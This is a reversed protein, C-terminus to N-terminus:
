KEELLLDGILRTGAAERQMVSVKARDLSIRPNGWFEVPGDRLGIGRRDKSQSHSSRAKFRRLPIIALHNGDQNEVRLFVGGVPIHDVLNQLNEKLPVPNERRERIGEELTSSGRRYNLAVPRLDESIFEGAAARISIVIGEREHWREASYSVGSFIVLLACLVPKVVARSSFVGILSFNPALDLTKMIIIFTTLVSSWYNPKTTGIPVTIGDMPSASPFPAIATLPKLALGLLITILAFPLALGRLSHM